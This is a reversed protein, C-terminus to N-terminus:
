FILLRTKALSKNQLYFLTSERFSMCRSANAKPLLPKSPGERNYLGQLDSFPYSRSIVAAIEEKIPSNRFAAQLQIGTKPFARFNLGDETRQKPFKRFNTELATKAKPFERCHTKM